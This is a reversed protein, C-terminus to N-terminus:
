MLTWKRVAKSGAFSCVNCDDARAHLSMSTAYRTRALNALTPNSELLQYRAIHSGYRSVVKAALRGEGGCLEAIVLKKRETGTLTPIMAGLAKILLADIIQDYFAV